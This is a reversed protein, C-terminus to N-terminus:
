GEGSDRPLEDAAEPFSEYELFHAVAQRERLRQMQTLM